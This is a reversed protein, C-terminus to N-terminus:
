LFYCLVLLLVVIEWIQFGTTFSNRFRLNWGPSSPAYSKQGTEGPCRLIAALQPESSPLSSCVFIWEQLVSLAGRSKTPSYSIHPSLAFLPKIGASVLVSNSM